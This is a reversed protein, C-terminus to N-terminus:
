LVKRFFLLLTSVDQPLADKGLECLHAGHAVPPLSARVSEGEQVTIFGIGIM